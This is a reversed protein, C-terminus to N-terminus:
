LESIDYALIYKNILKQILGAAFKILLFLLTEMPFALPTPHCTKTFPVIIFTFM